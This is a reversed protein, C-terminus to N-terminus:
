NEWAHEGPAIWSTGLRGGVSQFDHDLFVNGPVVGIWGRPINGQDHEMRIPEM